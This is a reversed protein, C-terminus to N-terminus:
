LPPASGAMRTNSLLTKLIAKVGVIADKRTLAKSQQDTTAIRLEVDLTSTSTTGIVVGDAGTGLNDMAAGRAVGIFTNAM